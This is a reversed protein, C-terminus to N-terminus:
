KNSCTKCIFNDKLDKIKDDIKFKVSLYVQTSSKINGEDDKNFPNITESERITRTRYKGCKSCDGIVKSNLEISKYM